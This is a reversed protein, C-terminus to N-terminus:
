IDHYYYYSCSSIFPLCQCSLIGAYSPLSEETEDQAEEFIEDLRYKSSLSREKGTVPSEMEPYLIVLNQAAGNM